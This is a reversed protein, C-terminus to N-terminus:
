RRCNKHWMDESTLNERMSKKKNINNNLLKIRRILIVKVILCINIKKSVTTWMQEEFYMNKSFKVPFCRHQLRKKIAVKNFLSQLM